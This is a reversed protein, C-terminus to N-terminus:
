FPLIPKEYECFVVNKEDTNLIKAWATKAEQRGGIEDVLGAELAKRGPMTSGDALEKVKDLPLERYDSVLQVFENHVIQLDSELKKREEDTIPRNPSGIDKFKGSTLQVYTIGEEENKKSEELYSMTVGISGIDSMASALLHDTAAAIMYAGSAVVDGALGLVPLETAKIRKAIRESSVPTGGPSNIELMLGKINKDNEARSIFEEVDKPTISLGFESIASFNSFPLIVGELPYVAINCTGDSISENNKTSLFVSLLIIVAFFTGTVVIAKVLILIIEKTLSPTKM